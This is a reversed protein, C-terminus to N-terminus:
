IRTRRLRRAVRRLMLPRLQSWADLVGSRTEQAAEPPAYAAVAFGGTLARAPVEVEPFLRALRRGLELPTEGPLIAAGALRALVLTRQWVGMVTRPRLYRSVYAAVLLLLALIVAIIRTLTGADPAGLRFGGSAGGANTAGSQNGAQRTQEPNQRTPGTGTSGTTAGPCLTDNVCVNTTDSHGRTLPSYNPDPTPEFPIWGFNPFYVEVWTHADAATVIYRNQDAHYTGPGFGNVLRTPIGLLRLMDGMATAFYECYGARSTNLFYDIRDVGPPPNGPKLTYKFNNRLYNQIATAVDYVNKQGATIQQALVKEMALVDPSRYGNPPLEMYPQLWDPYDIGASRLDAEFANPYESTVNYGGKSTPPTRSSLRDITDLPTDAAVPGAILVENAISERDVKVMQGPYFLVDTNGSPPVVMNITFTAYTESQYTEAYQPTTGRPIDQKFQITPDYRWEGTIPETVAVGRFYRPGIYTGAVTYTFVVSNSKKLEGALRVETSFGTTGPGGTPSTLSSDSPHNLQQQLQAWTSFLSSATTATRDVTSLPPLLIGLVILAATAVLGSEWFDWRADGTLKVRASVAKAISSTYNTWLLLAFTLVLFGLTYGNQNQPYNLVNTAFAAAGPILGILPQRWRIVCWALWGGTIWMLWAIVFLVFANDGFASGDQVRGIWTQILAFGAPDDPHFERFAGASEFAAVLPGIGMGVGVCLWWPLPTVALIAMFVAGALAVLPATEIGYVVWSASVTSKSIIVVLLFVIGASWLTSPRVAERTRSWAASALGPANDLSASQM